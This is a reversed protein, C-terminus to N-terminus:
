HKISDYAFLPLYRSSFPLRLLARRPVNWTRASHFPSNTSGFASIANRKMVWIWMNVSIFYFFEFDLVFAICHLLLRRLAPRCCHLGVVVVAVLVVCLLMLEKCCCRRSGRIIKRVVLEQLMREALVASM